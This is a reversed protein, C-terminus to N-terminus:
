KSKGDAQVRVFLPASATGIVEALADLESNSFSGSIVFTGGVIPDMIRPAVVVTDNVLIEIVKGVHESTFEALAQRGEDDLVVNVVPMGTADRSAEAEAVALSLKEQATASVLLSLSLLMMVAFRRM